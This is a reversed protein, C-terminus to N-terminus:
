TRPQKVVFMHDNDLEAVFIIKERPQPQYTTAMKMPGPNVLGEVEETNYIFKVFQQKLKNFAIITLKKVKFTCFVPCRAALIFTQVENIFSRDNSVIKRM